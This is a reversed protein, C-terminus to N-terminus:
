PKAVPQPQEGSEVAAAEPEAAASEMDRLAAKVDDTLDVHKKAYLIFPLGTNTNGSDEFVMDYGKEKSIRRAVEMIRNLSARMGTVEIRAIRKGEEARFEEFDEQLARVERAKMEYSRALKKQTEEDAHPNKAVLHNRIEQLEDIMRRLEVVQSCKGIREQETQIQRTLEATAPLDAYIDKIRVVAMRPAATTEGPGGLLFAFAIVSVLKMSAPLM